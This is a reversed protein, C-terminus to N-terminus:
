GQAPKAVYSRGLYAQIVDENASIAEPTGEAIKAGYNLVVIRECIGMIVKMNHEVLLITIGMDRVKQIFAMMEVTEQPNMGAIPEDLMLLTPETALATAIGALSQHGFPLASVPVSAKERLGIVDLLEEAKRYTEELELRAAATGFVAGFIHAETRCHRGRVVNELLSLNSFSKGGQFTRAIGKATVRHPPLNTIGGGRFAVQGGDSPYVGTLTNILTSKGSGNPGILGLIEGEHIELSVGDVAVLGGFRKTLNKVELLSM